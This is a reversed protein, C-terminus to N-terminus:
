NLFMTFVVHLLPRLIAPSLDSMVDSITGLTDLLDPPLMHIAAILLCIM